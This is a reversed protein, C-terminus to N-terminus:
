WAPRRLYQRHKPRRIAQREAAARFRCGLLLTCKTSSVNPHRKSPLLLGYARPNAPCRAGNSVRAFSCNHSSRAPLPVSHRICQKNAPLIIIIISFLNHGCNQSHNKNIQRECFTRSSYRVFPSSNKSSTSFDELYKSSKVPILVANLIRSSSSTFDFTPWIM